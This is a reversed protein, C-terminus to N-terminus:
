SGQPTESQAHPKLEHLLVSLDETSLAKGYESLYLLASALHKPSDKLGGLSVNCSNCLLGRVTNTDHDHDVHFHAKDRGGPSRTGCISCGFNQQELMRAYDSQDIGFKVRLQSERCRMRHVEPAERKRKDWWRKAIVAQHARFEPTKRCTRCHASKRYFDGRPHTENCWSCKRTAESASQTPQSQEMRTSSVRLM